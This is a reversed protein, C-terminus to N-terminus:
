EDNSYDHVYSGLGKRNAGFHEENSLKAIRSGFQIARKVLSQTQTLGLRCAVARLIRKDGIGPPADLDAIFHLPIDKLLQMVPEDLYPCRLERGHDSVVRDDRGLNRIGIRAVEM